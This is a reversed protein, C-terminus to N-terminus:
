GMSDCDPAAQFIELGAEALDRDLGSVQDCYRKTMTAQEPFWRSAEGVTKSAHHFRFCAVPEHLYSPTSIMLLRCMWDRDFVYRLSEDPALRKFWAGLFV